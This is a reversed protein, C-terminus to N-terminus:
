ATDGPVLRAYRAWERTLAMARDRPVPPAYGLAREAQKISVRAAEGYYVLAGGGPGGAPRYIVAADAGFRRLLSQQLGPSADWLRRPLTGIPDTDLVKRVFARLQPSTLITRGAGVLSGVLGPATGIGADMDPVLRVGGGAPAFFGYFEGLSVQDPDAILFASGGLGAPAELARAIADVVNDIYVMNAPVGADGRIAFRGAALAQLPRVTFTKSFPGYIRAPRLVVTNLGKRAVRQLAREAALKAQGYGDAAPPDLPATEDLVNGGERRHVFLTSIHVFRKVGAALAADAVIRTGDVTVKRAADPPWITGVACHVVADCGAAVRAMDAPSCVDGTAIEGPWRALRAAGGPRHVLAVVDWGHRERLLEVTRGGVFGGAGTVLVRRRVPTVSIAGSPVGRDIPRLGEDTWPEPLDTRRGYCDEILRVVPLVSRGSLGPETGAEIAGLWDDIEDRFAQYGVFEGHGAWAATLEVEASTPGAPHVLVRTFDSRRLELTARECEVRISNRLERTRSLEMRVPIGADGTAIGFHAVCDTEIGGRANDQFSDLVPRGPVVFLLEDILHSGLDILVGGGGAHRTLVDLTALQWGYPGGEEVDIALPVGYARTEVLHRLLRVSPLFRRYLGVGLAVGARDAAEVMAEANAATIAMPKEVFVHLGRAALALTAPAHHAPPTALIVADAVDPTLADLDTLVRPVQYPAALERARDEDRDVLATLKLRDHGALVPVLNARAVAGCGVLAVRLPGSRVSRPASLPRHAGPDRVPAADKTATTM